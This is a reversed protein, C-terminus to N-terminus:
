KDHRKNNKNVLGDMHKLIAGDLVQVYYIFEEIPMVFGISHFYTIIESVQLPQCGSFGNSRGRHLIWFGDWVRQLDENIVPRDDWLPVKKGRRVLPELDQGVEQWRL